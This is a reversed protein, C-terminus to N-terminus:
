LVISLVKVVLGTLPEKLGVEVYILDGHSEVVDYGKAEYDILLYTVAYIV